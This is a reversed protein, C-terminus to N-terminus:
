AYTVEPVADPTRSAIENYLWAAAAVLMGGVVLAFVTMAANRGTEAPESPDIETGLVPVEVKPM